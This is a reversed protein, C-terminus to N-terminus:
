WREVKGSMRKRIGSARSGPLPHASQKIGLHKSRKRATTAKEAVDVATKQRHKDRLAPFLNSERHEGGNILARKHDLEWLEGPMIKRGSLHCRGGERLFVRLRVRDPVKSDPTAGIWEKVARADQTM